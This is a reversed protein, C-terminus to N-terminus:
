KDFLAVIEPFVEAPNEKYRDILTLLEGRDIGLEGLLEKRRLVHYGIFQLLNRPKDKFKASEFDIIRVRKGDYLLHKEGKIESHEVGCSDLLYCSELASLIVPKGYVRYAELFPIGEIWEMVLFDSACLLPAPAPNKEKLCRDLHKLFSCEKQPLNQKSVDSRPVKVAVPRGSLEGKFVVGRYGKAVFSLNKVGYSSLLEFKKKGEEPNGRPYDLLSFLQSSPFEM